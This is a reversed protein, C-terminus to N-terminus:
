RTLPIGSRMVDAPDYAAKVSRLRPLHPGRFRTPNGQPDPYNPYGPTSDNGGLTKWSREVWAAADLRLRDSARTGTQVTHKVLFPHARHPAAGAGDAIAGGWPIFEVERYVGYARDQALCTAFAWWADAPVSRTAFGARSLRLAPRQGPPLRPLTHEATDGPYDCFVAAATRDLAATGHDVPDPFHTLLARAAEVDEGVVVGFLAVRPPEHPFDGAYASVEVNVERAATPAHRQWQDLVAATATHDWHARVAILPVSPRTRMEASVVIGFTGGGAGRLAWFLDPHESTSATVVRGDALLVRASLLHDAGLGYYRSLVGYGGGLVAGVVGVSRCWGVPVVLGEPALRDALAGVRVGAAVRVRDGLPEIGDLGGLDLVVGPSTSHEAFSHGGGRVAFPLRLRTVLALAAAVDAESTCAVVAAPIQEDHRSIFMKRSHQHGPDGPRHVPCPLADLAATV